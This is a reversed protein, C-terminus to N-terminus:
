GQKVSRYRRIAKREPPGSLAVKQSQLILYLASLRRSPKGLEIDAKTGISCPRRRNQRPRRRAPSSESLFRQLKRAKTSRNNVQFAPM